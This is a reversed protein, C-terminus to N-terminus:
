SNSRLMEFPFFDNLNNGFMNKVRANEGSNLRFLHSPVKVETWFLQWVSNWIKFKDSLTNCMKTFIVLKDHFNSFYFVGLIYIQVFILHERKVSSIIKVNWSSIASIFTGMEAIKKVNKHDTCM